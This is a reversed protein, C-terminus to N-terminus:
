CCTIWNEELMELTELRLYKSLNNVSGVCIERTLVINM